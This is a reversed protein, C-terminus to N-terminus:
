LKVKALAVPDKLVELASVPMNHPQVEVVASISKQALIATGAADKRTAISTVAFDNKYYQKNGYQGADLIQCLNCPADSAPVFPSLDIEYEVGLVSGPEPLTIVRAFYENGILANATAIAVGSDAAYFVRQITRENSGILMESQTVLSLGLALITLVVLALLTVLYASGASAPPRRRRAPLSRSRSPSTLPKM